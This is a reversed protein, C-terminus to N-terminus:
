IKLSARWPVPKIGAYKAMYYGYEAYVFADALDPSVVSRAKMDDKTEIQKRGLADMPKVKIACLQRKLDNFDKESIRTLDYFGNEFKKAVLDYFQTRLNRYNKSDMAHYGYGGHFEHHPVKQSRLIDAVGEGFGDSDITLSHPSYKLNLEKLKQATETAPIHKHRQIEMITHGLRYIIVTECAGHKTAVDCALVSYSDEENDDLNKRKRAENVHVVKILADELNSFADWDGELYARLLNPDYQFASRLTNKYNNPLNPNDDPLAQIFVSNKRGGLIFDDKLWCEAPNATYLEKYPPVKDGLKFRLSGQLVAVDKRATEEAQDLVFFASEFSNFKNINVEDDLGGYALKARDWFIIEKDHEKIKYHDFPVVKKFTELTTDNFDVSRKRGIFGLMPPVRSPKLDFYQILWQMWYDVWLCIFTTKGGGKAGGFLLACDHMDTLHYRAESQKATLQYKKIIQRM